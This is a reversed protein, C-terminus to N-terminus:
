VTACIVASVASFCIGVSLSDPVDGAPTPAWREGSFMQVDPKLILRTQPNQRVEEATIECTQPRTKCCLDPTADCKAKTEFNAFGDDFTLSAADSREPALLLEDLAVINVGAQALTDLQNRFADRDVSIPSGSSDVSHYTLIARM